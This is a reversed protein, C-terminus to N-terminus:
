NIPSLVFSLPGSVVVVWKDKRRRTGLCHFSHIDQTLVMTSVQFKFSRENKLPLNKNFCFSIEWFTSITTNCKKSTDMVSKVRGNPQNDRGLWWLEHGLRMMKGKREREREGEIGKIGVKKCKKHAGEKRQL